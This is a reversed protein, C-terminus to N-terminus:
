ESTRASGAQSALTGPEVVLTRRPTWGGCADEVTRAEPTLGVVHYLALSGYSALAAGFQKLQDATPGSPLSDFVFIPVQWYDNVLRGVHCGLAGWDANSGPPDLVRVLVTGRRQGPLHDRATPADGGEVLAM